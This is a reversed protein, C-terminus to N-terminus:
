HRKAQESQEIQKKVAEVNTDSYVNTGRGGTTKAIWEIAENYSLGSRRAQERIAEIDTGVETFKPEDKGM